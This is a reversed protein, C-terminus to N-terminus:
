SLWVREVSRYCEIAVGAFGFKRIRLRADVKLNQTRSRKFMLGSVFDRAEFTKQLIPNANHTSNLCESLNQVIFHQVSGM